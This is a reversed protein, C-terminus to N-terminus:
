DLTKGSLEGGFFVESGNSCDKGASDMVQGKNWYCANFSSYKWNQCSEPTTKTYCAQLAARSSSSSKLHNPECAGNSATNGSEFAYACLQSKYRSSILAQCGKNVAPCDKSTIKEYFYGSSSTSKGGDQRRKTKAWCDHGRWYAAM